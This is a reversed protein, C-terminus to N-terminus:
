APRTYTLTLSPDVWGSYDAGATIFGRIAGTRLGERAASDLGVNAWGDSGDSADSYTGGSGSPAGGPQSGHASGQVTLTKAGYEGDNRRADLRAAVIETADLNVVLSGWTALGTMPGSGRGNGQWM